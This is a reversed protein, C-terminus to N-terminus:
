RMLAWVEQRARFEAISAKSGSSPQNGSSHQAVFNALAGSRARIQDLSDLM